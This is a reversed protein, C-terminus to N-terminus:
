LFPMITSDKRQKNFQFVLKRRFLDLFYNATHVASKVCSLNRCNLVLAVSFLIHKQLFGAEAPKKRQPIRM